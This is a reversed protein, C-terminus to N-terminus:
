RPIGAGNPDQSEAGSPETCHARWLPSSNSPELRGDPGNMAASNGSM